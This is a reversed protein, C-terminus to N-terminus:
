SKLADFTPHRQPVSGDGRRALMEAAIRIVLEEYEKAAERVARGKGEIVDISEALITSLEEDTLDIGGSGAIYRIAERPGYTLKM